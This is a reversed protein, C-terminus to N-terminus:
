EIPYYAGEKCPMYDSSPWPKYWTCVGLTNICIYHVGYTGAPVYSGNDLRYQMQLECPAKFHSAFATGLALVVSTSVMILKIRKM